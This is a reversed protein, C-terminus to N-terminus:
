SRYEEESLIDKCRLERLTDLNAFTSESVGGERPASKLDDFQPTTLTGKHRLEGLAPLTKLRAAFAM